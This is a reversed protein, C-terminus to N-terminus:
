ETSGATVVVNRGGRKAAYLAKDAEEGIIMADPYEPFSAIGCSFTVFFDESTSRQRIKSFSERIENMIREANALDTNFLVVGFEEGGYRGVADTKRLREVLLKALAKIVRDGTIHGHNDNVLKFHDIDIMAFCLHGEIRRVRDIDDSLRKKIQSHNLLGTLSDREMFYRLQRTREARITISTILHEPKIPKTLFDDGGQRIAVLQKSIDKEVSLYVIPVGVFADQQRILAALETGSCGPMYMDMLILEPKAEILIRMVNGPETVVSTIMGAKQLLMAYYSIQEPDDDVILIHYPERAAENSLGDIKDILRPIDFPFPFFADGGHRVASLRTEFGEAESLYIIRLKNGAGNNRMALIEESFKPDEEIDRVDLLLVAMKGDAILSNVSESDEVIVVPFGFFGMQHRLDEIYDAGGSHICLVRNAGEVSVTKMFGGSNIEDPSIPSSAASKVQAEECVLALDEYMKILQDKKGDPVVSGAEICSDLFLEIDRAINSILSFGFTAGSGSLKHASNKAADFVRKDFVTLSDILSLGENLASVRDPLGLVFQRALEKLKERVKDPLGSSM